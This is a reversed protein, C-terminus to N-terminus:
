SALRLVRVLDETHDFLTTVIDSEVQLVVQETTYANVGCIKCM